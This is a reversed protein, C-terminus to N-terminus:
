WMKFSVSITKSVKIVGSDSPINKEVQAVVDAKTTVSSTTSSSSVPQVLVMKRILKMSKNGISNAQSKADNIAKDYSEKELASINGVSLVPQNVVSAGRAYLIAVIGSINNLQKTKFGLAQTASFGSEGAKVVSNPYVTIQSEYIDSDDVGYTKITEKIKGVKDVLSNTANQSNDSSASVSLTISASEAPATVEGVGNVTVVMPSFVYQLFAFGLVLLIIIPLYGKLNLQASEM